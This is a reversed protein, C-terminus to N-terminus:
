VSAKFEIETVVFFSVLFFLLELLWQDSVLRQNLITAVGRRIIEPEISSESSSITQFSTESKLRFEVWFVVILSNFFKNGDTLIHIENNQVGGCAGACCPATPKQHLLLQCLNVVQLVNCFFASTLFSVWRFVVTTFM